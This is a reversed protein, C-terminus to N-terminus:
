GWKLQPAVLGTVEEFVEVLQDCYVEDCSKILKAEAKRVRYFDMKYMDAPTLTIKVKNISDKTFGGGGPLTFSLGDSSGIFNRAGTMFAFKNGGLQNLITKAVQSMM